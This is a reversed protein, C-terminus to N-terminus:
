RVAHLTVVLTDRRRLVHRWGVHRGSIVALGAVCWLSEIGNRKDIVDFDKAVAALTMVTNGRDALGIKMHLCLIFTINAVISCMEQRQVRIATKIMRIDGSGAASTVVSSYRGSHCWDKRDSGVRVGTGFTAETVLCSAKERREGVMGARFHNALTTIGTMVTSSGGALCATMRCGTDITTDTVAIQCEAKATNKIM